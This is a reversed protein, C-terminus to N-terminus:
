FSSSTVDDQRIDIDGPLELHGGVAEGDVTVATSAALRGTDFSGSVVTIVGVYGASAPLDVRLTSPVPPASGVSGGGIFWRHVADTAM